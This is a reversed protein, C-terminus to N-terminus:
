NNEFSNRSNHIVIVKYTHLQTRNEEYSGKLPSNAVIQEEVSKFWDNLQNFSDEFSSWNVLNVEMQRQLELISDHLTEWLEKVNKVQQRILERGEASTLPYLKEGCEVTQNKKM